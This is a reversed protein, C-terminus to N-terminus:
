YIRRSGRRKVPVERSLKRGQRTREVRRRHPNAGVGPVRCAVNPARPRLARVAALHRGPASTRPRARRRRADSGVIRLVRLRGVLRADVQVLRALRGRHRPPRRRRRRLAAGDVHHAAPWLARRRRDGAVLGRGPWGDDARAARELAAPSVDRVAVMAPLRPPRHRAQRRRVRGRLVGPRVQRHAPGPPNSAVASPRGRVPAGGGLHSTRRPSGVAKAHGRAPNPASTRGM